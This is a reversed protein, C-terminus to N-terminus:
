PLSSRETPTELAELLEKRRRAVDLSSGISYGINLEGLGQSKREANIEARFQDFAKRLAAYAPSDDKHRGVLTFEPDEGEPFISWSFSLHFMNPRLAIRKLAAVFAERDRLYTANSINLDRLNKFEDFIALDDEHLECGLRLTEVNPFKSLLLKLDVQEDRRRPYVAIGKVQSPSLWDLELGDSQGDPNVTVVGGLYELTISPGRPCDVAYLQLYALPLQRVTHRLTEHDMRSRSIQLNSLGSLNGLPAIDVASFDGYIFALENLSRLQGIARVHSQSLVTQPGFWLSLASLGKANALSDLDLSKADNVGRLRLEKLWPEATAQRLVDRERKWDIAKGTAYDRELRFPRGASNGTVIWGEKGWKYKARELESARQNAYFRMGTWCGLAICAYVQILMLQRLSLSMVAQKSPTRRMGIAALLSLAGTTALAIVTYRWSFYGDFFRLLFDNSTGSSSWVIAMFVGFLIVSAAAAGGLGVLAATLVRGQKWKGILGLLAGVVAALPLGMLFVGMQLWEVQTYENWFM